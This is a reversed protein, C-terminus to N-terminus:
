PATRRARIDPLIRRAQRVTLTYASRTHSTLADAFSVFPAPTTFVIWLGVGAVNLLYILVYSFLRGCTVIDPQRILLSNLTFTIHFSWSLGILFLWVLHYPSPDMFLGLLLRVGVLLITYFPFFYPALTILTNTKSLRVSGGTPRVDLNSVRAGFIMGWVAHTLEHALIYARMPHPLFMYGITWLVGGVALALAPPAFPSTSASSIFVMEVTARTVAVCLPLLLLATVFRIWKRIM